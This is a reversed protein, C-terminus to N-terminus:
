LGTRIFRLKRQCTDCKYENEHTHWKPKGNKYLNTKDSKCIICVTKSHDKIRKRKLHNSEMKKYYNKKGRKGDVSIKCHEPKSLLIMNHKHNDTTKGNIHHIEIWPLICVNHFYEYVFRHLLVYGLKNSQPHEPKYLILYEGSWSIGGKWGPTKDGRKGFNNHGNIFYREEGHPDILPKINGCGCRCEILFCTGCCNVCFKKNRKLKRRDSLRAITM